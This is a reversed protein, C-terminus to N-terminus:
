VAKNRHKRDYEELRFKADAGAHAQQMQVQFYQEKVKGIPCITYRLNGNYRKGDNKYVQTPKTTILGKEELGAVYKRVTNKSIKLASGITKYSPYCQFMKRDECYLLYSYVSIEGSSLGLCFIEDPLPFYNKIPDRKPYRNYKM